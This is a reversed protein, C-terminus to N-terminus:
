VEAVNRGTGAHSRAKCGIHKRPLAQSTLTHQTRMFSARADWVVGVCLECAIQMYDAHDERRVMTACSQLNHRHTDLRTHFAAAQSARVPVCRGVLDNRTSRLCVVRVGGIAICSAFAKSYVQWVPCFPLSDSMHIGM